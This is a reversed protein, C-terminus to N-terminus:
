EMGKRCAEVFEIPLQTMQATQEVTNGEELLRRAVVQMSEGVEIMHWDPDYLRVVRQHWEHTKPPHVLEVDLFGHLKIMVQKILLDYDIKAPVDGKRTAKGNLLIKIFQRINRFGRNQM